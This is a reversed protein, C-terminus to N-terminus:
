ASTPPPAVPESEETHVTRQWPYPSLLGKVKGLYHARANDDGIREFAYAVINNCIGQQWRGLEASEKHYARLQAHLDTISASDVLSDVDAGIMCEVHAVIRSFAVTANTDGVAREVISVFRNAASPSHVLFCAAALVGHFHLADIALLRQLSKEIHEDSLGTFGKALILGCLAETNDPDIRLALSFHRFAVSLAGASEACRVHGPRLGLRKAECLQQHGYLVHADANHPQANAFKILCHGIGANDCGPEDGASLRSYDFNAYFGQRESANLSALADALEVWQESELLAIAFSTDSSYLAFDHSQQACFHKSIASSKSEPGRHKVASENAAGEKEVSEDVLLEFCYHLTYCLCMALSSALLADAGPLMLDGAAIILGLCLTVAAYFSGSYGQKQLTSYVFLMCPLLVIYSM